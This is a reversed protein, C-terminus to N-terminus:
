RALSLQRIRGAIKTGDETCSITEVTSRTSSDVLVITGVRKNLGTWLEDLGLAAVLFESQRRTHEDTLDLTVHLVPLDRTGKLLEPASKDFGVCNRCWDARLRIAVLDASEPRTGANPQGSAPSIAQARPWSLGLLVVSLCGAALALSVVKSGAFGKGTM